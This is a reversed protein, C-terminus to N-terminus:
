QDYRRHGSQFMNFDLWDATHFWTSSDHRGFPHFTMLKKPDPKKLSTGLTEWFATQDSGKIDGGNLWIINKKHRYREALWTGYANATAESIKGSKVNTGWIPVLAVYQKKQQALLIVYDLHDWLDYEDGNKFSIG